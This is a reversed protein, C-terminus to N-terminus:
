INITSNQHGSLNSPELTAAAFLLLYLSCAILSGCFAQGIQAKAPSEIQMWVTTTSCVSNSRDSRRQHISYPSLPLADAEYYRITNGVYRVCNDSYNKQTEIETNVFLFRM